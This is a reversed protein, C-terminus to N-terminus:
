ACVSGVYETRLRSFPASSRTRSAKRTAPAGFSADFHRVQTLIRRKGPRQDVDPTPPLATTIPEFTRNGSMSCLPEPRTFYGYPSM